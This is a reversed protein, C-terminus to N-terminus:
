WRRETIAKQSADETEILKCLHNVFDTVADRANSQRHTYVVGSSTNYASAYVRSLADVNEIIISKKM